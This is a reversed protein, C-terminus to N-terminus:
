IIIILKIVTIFVMIVEKLNITFLNLSGIIIKIFTIVLLYM